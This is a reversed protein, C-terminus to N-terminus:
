APDSHMTKQATYQCCDRALGMLWRHKANQMMCASESHLEDAGANIGHPQVRRKNCCTLIPITLRALSSSALHGGGNTTPQKCEISVLVVGYDLELALFLGADAEDDEEDSDAMKFGQKALQKREKDRQEDRSLEKKVAKLKVDSTNTSCRV